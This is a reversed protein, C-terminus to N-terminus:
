VESIKIGITLAQDQADFTMTLSGNNVTCDTFSIPEVTAGSEAFYYPDILSTSKILPSTFTLSTEGAALTATLFTESTDVKTWGIWNAFGDRANNWYGNVWIGTSKGDTKVGTIKVFVANRAFWEVTRVGWACDDPMSTTSARDVIKPKNWDGYKDTTHVILADSLVGNDRASANLWDKTAYNVAGIPRDNLMAIAM